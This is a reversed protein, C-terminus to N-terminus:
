LGLDKSINKLAQLSIEFFEEKEMGIKECCLIRERSCNRAFDKQKFKKELTELKLDELKKSPLILACAVILGSISDASILAFDMKSKPEEKTNEFNHSKITRIMDDDVKGSLIKEAEIGHISPSNFTEEFDIDHLLGVIGWREEDEGLKKAVARMIAEVALVHKLLNERKIYNRVFKLAEERNM